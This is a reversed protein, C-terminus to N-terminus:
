EKDLSQRSKKQALTENDCEAKRKRDLSQRTIRQQCSKNARTDTVLQINQKRRMEYSKKKLKPM